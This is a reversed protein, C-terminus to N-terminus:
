ILESEDQELVAVDMASYDIMCRPSLRGYIGCARGNIVYVGICPFMVGLPTDIATTEFRRQAIWQGPHLWVDLMRKRWRTAPLLDRATVSDGTNCFATKLIWGDDRRWLADRPDRTEPLLRRWTPLAADLEDWVLPLRKSETLIACGPNAVPTRAGVFLNQWGIRRPLRSLWEGQYFRVITSVPGTYASSQAIAYGDRWTLQRPDLLIADAGRHRLHRALGGVVQHDEMFGAASLLAIAGRRDQLSAILADVYDGQPDGAPIADSSCEAVMAAFASSEAFGGPVDSNVESVRWGDATPHFDFRMVRCATPTVGVDRATGLVRRLRQPLALQAHLDPRRILREECLLTERALQEASERLYAWQAGSLILPFHALVSVDGVQPDWKCHDLVMRRRISEFHNADIEDGVRLACSDTSFNSLTALTM